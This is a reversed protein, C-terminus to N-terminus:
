NGESFSKFASDKDLSSGDMTTAMKSLYVAVFGGIYFYPSTSKSSNSNKFPFITQIDLQSIQRASAPMFAKAVALDIRYCAAHSTM